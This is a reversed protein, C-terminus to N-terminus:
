GLAGIEVTAAVGHDRFYGRAFEAALRARALWLGALVLLLVLLIGLATHSARRLTM